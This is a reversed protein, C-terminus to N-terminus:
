LVKRFNTMDGICDFGTDIARQKISKNMSNCILIKVKRLKAVRILENTIANLAHSRLDKDSKPNSIYYDIIAFRNDTLILFGVAIDEVIFGHKPVSWAPPPDIERSDCWQCISTYDVPRYRRM